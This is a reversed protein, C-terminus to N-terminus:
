SAYEGIKLWTNDKGIIITTLPTGRYLSFSGDASTIWYSSNGKTIIEIRRNNQSGSTNSPLTVDTSIPSTLIIVSDTSQVIYNGSTTVTTVTEYNAGYREIRSASLRLFTDGIQLMVTDPIDATFNTGIAVIDSGTITLNHGIGRNYNGTITLNRGIGTNWNGTITVNNGEGFNDHGNINIQKGIGYNNEETIIIDQGIGFSHDKNITINEGLGFSCISMVEINNGIIGSYNGKAKVDKGFAFSGTGINEPNWEDLLCQGGRFAQKSPVWMYRVGSGIIPVDGNIGESWMTGAVKLENTKAWTYGSVEWASGNWRLIDGITIGDPIIGGGGGGSTIYNLQDFTIIHEGDITEVRFKYVGNAYIKARGSGDLYVPNSALVTENKDLWTNKLTTTGAEYTWVRGELPLGNNDVIGALLWEVQVAM